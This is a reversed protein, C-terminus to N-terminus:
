TSQKNIAERVVAENEVSEAAFTVILERLQNVDMKSVINQAEWKEDLVVEENTSDWHGVVDSLVDFVGKPKVYVESKAKDVLYTEGNHVEEVCEVDEFSEDEVLADDELTIVEAECDGGDWECGPYNCNRNCVGNSLLQDESCITPCYSETRNAFSIISYYVLIVTSHIANRHIPFM